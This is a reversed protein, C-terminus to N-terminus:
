PNILRRANAEDKGVDKCLVNWNGQSKRVRVGGSPCYEYEYEIPHVISYSYSYWKMSYSYSIQGSIWTFSLIEATAKVHCM